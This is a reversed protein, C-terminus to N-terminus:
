GAVRSFIHSVMKSSHQKVRSGAHLGKLPVRTPQRPRYLQVCGAPLCIVQLRLELTQPATRPLGAVRSSGRRM